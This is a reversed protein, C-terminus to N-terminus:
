ALSAFCSPCNLTGGGASTGCRPCSKGATTPPKYEGAVISTSSGEGVGFLM